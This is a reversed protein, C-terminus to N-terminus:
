INVRANLLFIEWGFTSSKTEDDGAKATNSAYDLVLGAGLLARESIKYYYNAVIDFGISTTTTENKSM